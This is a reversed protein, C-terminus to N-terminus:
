KDGDRESRDVLRRARVLCKYMQNRLAGESRCLREGIQRYSLRDGVRLRILERCGESLRALIWERRAATQREILADDPRRANSTLREDLPATDRRRRMWDLCRRHAVIRVFADLGHRLTFDPRVIARWLDLMAEQIVDDRQDPPIFHGREGVMLRLLAGVRAVADADGLLLRRLTEDRHGKKTGSAARGGATELPGRAHSSTM